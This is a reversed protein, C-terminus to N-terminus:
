VQAVQHLCRACCLRSATAMATSAGAGAGAGSKRFEHALQDVGRDLCKCPQREYARRGKRRRRRGDCALNVCDIFCVCGSMASM